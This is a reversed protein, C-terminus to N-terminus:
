EKKAFLNLVNTIIYIVMVMFFMLHISVWVPNILMVKNDIDETYAETTNVNFIFNTSDEFTIETVATGLVLLMIASPILWVVRGVSQSKQSPIDRFASSVVGILGGYGILGYVFFEIISLEAM